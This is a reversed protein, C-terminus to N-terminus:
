NIVGEKKNMVNRMEEFMFTKIALKGNSLSTNKGLIYVPIPLLNVDLQGKNTKKIKKDIFTFIVSYAQKCSSLYWM